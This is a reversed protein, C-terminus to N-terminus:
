SEGKQLKAVAKAVKEDILADQKKEGAWNGVITLIAGGVSAAIGAVKVLNKTDM